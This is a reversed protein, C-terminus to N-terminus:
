NTVGTNAHFAPDTLDVGHAGAWAIAGSEMGFPNQPLATGLAYANTASTVPGQNSPATSNPGSNLSFQSFLSSLDGLGPNGFIASTSSGEGPIGYGIGSPAYITSGPSVTGAAAVDAATPSSSAAGGSTLWRYALYVLVVLGLGWFWAAHRGIFGM